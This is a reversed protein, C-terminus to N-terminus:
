PRLRYLAFAAGAPVPELWDPVQGARLRGWLSQGRALEALGDPPRPGCVMVYTPQKPQAMGALAQRAQDPPSALAQQAAVIGAALRHYPAAMASHPTLALIFPGYSIDTVILGPPLQALAAYSETRFCQRSALRAIGDRDNFGTAAAIGVAGWSLAM